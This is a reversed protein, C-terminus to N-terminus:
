TEPPPANWYEGLDECSWEDRITTSDGFDRCVKRDDASVQGQEDLCSGLEADSVTFGCEETAYDAMRVCIDQCANRCGGLSALAAVVALASLPRIPM